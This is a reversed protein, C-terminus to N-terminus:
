PSESSNWRQSSALLFKILTQCSTQWFYWFSEWDSSYSLWKQSKTFGHVAPHLAERDMVLGWLKSLGMDVLDTISDLWIMRQWGQRKRDEIEELMLIKELSDIRRMLHGFYQLKLKLMLRELSSEPNIGKLISQNTAKCDLPSEGTKELVVNCFCWNKLAWNDKCDLEWMYKHINSFSYIHSSPVKNAFSIYRQKKIHEIPHDYRKDLSYTDKSKIALVGDATIKSGGFIFDTMIELKGM